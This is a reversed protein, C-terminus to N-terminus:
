LDELGELIHVTIKKNELDVNLIVDDIVPLLLPKNNDRKVEYVDNSGTQLINDLVGIKKDYEDYVEIGILDAIYYAGDPLDGLMERKATLIQEKYKVAVDVDNIEAFKVIINGKQYKVHKITLKEMGDKRNVYVYKIKEFIEPSDTWTLVKVEGKLGHTNVIKGVELLDM